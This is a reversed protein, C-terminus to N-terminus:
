WFVQWPNAGLLKGSEIMSLKQRKFSARSMMYVYPYFVLVFTMIIAWSGARIDFLCM